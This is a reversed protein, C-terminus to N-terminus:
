SRSGTPRSRRGAGGARRCGRRPSCPSAAACSCRARGAPACIKPDDLMQQERETGYVVIVAATAAAFHLKDEDANTIPRKEDIKEVFAAMDATDKAGQRDPRYLVVTGLSPDATRDPLDRDLNIYGGLTASMVDLLGIKGETAAVVSVHPPVFPTPSPTLTPAPTPQAPRETDVRELADDDLEIRGMGLRDRRREVRGRQLTRLLQHRAIGFLWNVASGREPDFRDLGELACAFTEATLDAGLEPDGTRRVLYGLVAAAHRRCFQTFAEADTRASELLAEDTVAEDIM